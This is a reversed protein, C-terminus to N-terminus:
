KPYRQKLKKNLSTALKKERYATILQVTTYVVLVLLIYVVIESPKSFDVWDWLQSLVLLIALLVFFHLIIRILMKEKPLEKPSYYILMPLNTVFASLLIVGFVAVSFTAQPSFILCFVYMSFVIGTTIIFFSHFMYKLLEKLRM